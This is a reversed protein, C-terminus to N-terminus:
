LEIKEDGKSNTQFPSVEGEKMQNMAQKVLNAMDVNDLNPHIAKNYGKGDNKIKLDGNNNKRMNEVIKLAEKGRIWRTGQFGEMDKFDNEDFSPNAEAALVEDGPGKISSLMLYLSLYIAMLPICGLIVKTCLGPNRERKCCVNSSRSKTM